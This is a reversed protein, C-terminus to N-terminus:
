ALGAELLETFLLPALAKMTRRAALDLQGRHKTQRSAVLAERFREPESGARSSPSPLRWLDHLFGVLPVWETPPSLELSAADDALAAVNPDAILDLPVEAPRELFARCWRERAAQDEGRAALVNGLVVLARSSNVGAAIARDLSALAEDPRNARQWFEGALQGGATAGPALSDMARAKAAEVGRRAALSLGASGKDALLALEGTLDLPDLPPTAVLRAEIGRLIGALEDERRAEAETAALAFRGDAALQTAIALRVTRSSLLDLQGELVDNPTPEEPASETPPSAPTAPLAPLDAFLPLQAAM